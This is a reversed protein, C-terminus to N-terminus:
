ALSPHSVLNDRYLLAFHHQTCSGVPRQGPTESGPVLRIPHAACSDAKSSGEARLPRQSQSVRLPVAMDSPASGIWSLMAASERKKTPSPVMPSVTCRTTSSASRATLAESM